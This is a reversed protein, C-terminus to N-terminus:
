ASINTNRSVDEIAQWVAQAQTNGVDYDNARVTIQAGLRQVTQGDMTEEVETGGTDIITTYPGDGDPIVAKTSLFVDTGVTVLAADILVRRVERPWDAVPNRARARINISWLRRENDDMGFQIPNSNTLMELYFTM